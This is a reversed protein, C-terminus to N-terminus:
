HSRTALFPSGDIEPPRKLIQDALLHASGMAMTWGLAGHGANIYLGEINGRGIFPRGDSSMPRLGAWPTVADRDVRSALEPLLSELVDFLHDIRSKGISTDFGAFEATGVVRIRDGFRSVVAHLEDDQIAVGPLEGLGAADITVSYGKAPKVPISQGVSRLLAPSHVGAAVVVRDADIRGRNTDAGLIKGNSVILGTVEICTDIEGGGAVIARAVGQCFLHADGTADDPLWIGGILKHAVNKLLPERAVIEGPDLPVSTMGLPALLECVSQREAMQQANQFVSLIGTKQLDYELGLRETLERTKDRSYNALRFNDETAARFRDPASNRLFRLGWTLYSPMTRWRLQMSPSSRFLSAALHRQVGPGNWPEPMSPTLLGGNAFSTELAVGERAELVRVKEGRDLLVQATSLGILGGGIILLPKM